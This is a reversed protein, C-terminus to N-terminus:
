LSIEIMNGYKTWGGSRWINEPLRSIKVKASPCLNEFLSKYNHIWNGRFVSDPQDHHMEFFIIKKGAVRLIENLINKIKDKGFYLLTADTFILDVSKAGFKKLSGAGGAKLSVNKINEKKFFKQGERIAKESIDVGYCETGPFERGLWYLNPGSACGFELISKFPAKSKIKKFVFRRHEDDLNEAAIYSQAWSKDFFHRYRWYFEGSKSGGALFLTTKVKRLIRKLLKM